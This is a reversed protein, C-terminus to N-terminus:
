LSRIVSIIREYEKTEKWKECVEMGLYRDLVYIMVCLMELSTETPAIEKLEELSELVKLTFEKETM